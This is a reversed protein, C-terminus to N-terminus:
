RKMITIALYVCLVALGFNAKLFVFFYISVTFLVTLVLLSAIYSIKEARQQEGLKCLMHYCIQGGDLEGVPLLNMCGILLNCLAFQSLMGERLYLSGALLLNLIPGAAFILIDAGYSTSTTMKKAIEIGFIRFRIEEIKEGTAVFALLHATEHLLIAMIAHLSLRSQDLSLLIVLIFFFWFSFSLKIKGVTIEIM